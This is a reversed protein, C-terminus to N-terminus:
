QVYFLLDDLDASLNSIMTEDNSEIATYLKERLAFFEEADEGQMQQKMAEAKELLSLAKPFREKAMQYVHPRELLSAAVGDDVRFNALFEESEKWDQTTSLQESQEFLSILRGKAEQREELSLQSLANDIELEEVRGTAPHKATVRLVGDLTLNFAVLIKKSEPSEGAVNLKVKGILTNRSPNRNEGQLVPIEVFEQRPHMKAFAEEYRAPLASGRHIIPAYGLEVEIDNYGVCVELGLTHTAVDVLVPGVNEGQLMAAQVAAGLAVALDPDVSRSPQRMFQNRLEDAVLPIRTSGGVLVLDDIQHISVSADRLANGVCVLTREVLPM